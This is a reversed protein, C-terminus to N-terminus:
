KGYCIKVLLITVAWWGQETRPNADGTPCKQTFISARTCRLIRRGCLCPFWLETVFQYLSVCCCNFFVGVILHGFCSSIFSCSRSQDILLKMGEIHRTHACLYLTGSCSARGFNLLLCVKSHVSFNEGLGSRWSSAPLLQPAIFGEGQQVRSSDMVGWAAM